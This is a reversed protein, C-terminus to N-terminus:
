PAPPPLRPEVQLEVFQNTATPAWHQQGDAYVCAHARLAAAKPAWAEDGQHKSPIFSVALSGTIRGGLSEFMTKSLSWMVGQLVGRDKTGATTVREVFWNFGDAGQPVSGVQLKGLASLLPAAGAAATGIGPIPALLHAISSADSLAPAIRKWDDAGKASLTQEEQAPSLYKVTAVLEKIRWGADLPFYLYVHAAPDGLNSWMTDDGRSFLRRHEPRQGPHGVTWWYEYIPTGTTTTEAAAGPPLVEAYHLDIIPSTEGFVELYYPPDAGDWASLDQPFSTVEIM